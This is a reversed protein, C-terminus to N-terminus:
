LRISTVYADILPGTAAPNLLQVLQLQIWQNSLSHSFRSIPGTTAADVLPVLVAPDVLPGASAYNM